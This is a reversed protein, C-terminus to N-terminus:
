VWSADGEYGLGVLADGAYAHFLKRANGDFYNKWDGVIGKRMFSNNNEEGVKRGSVKEFSYKDVIKDAEVEGIKLGTLDCVIKQLAIVPETRLVEYKVHVHNSKAGWLDYFDSWSLKPNRKEEFVYSM